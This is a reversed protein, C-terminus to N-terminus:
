SPTNNEQPQMLFNQVKKVLLNTEMEYKLLYDVAGLSIAEHITTADNYNSVIMVPIATTESDRKLETLVANGLMDPMVQDLLIMDPKQSKASDLGMKGSPAKIVDFGASKFGIEWTTVLLLDDDIILIKM